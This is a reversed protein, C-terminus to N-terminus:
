VVFLEETDASQDASALSVRNRGARKAKYLEQDAAALLEDLQEGQNAITGGVSITMPLTLPAAGPKAMGPSNPGDSSDNARQRYPQSQVAQRLREAVIWSDQENNIPVIACFEEGGYRAIVAEPRLSKRLVKACHELVRDGVDHGHEDNVRKFHDIDLMLVAVLKGSLRTREILSEGHENLSGRSTLHTLADTDVRHRLALVNQTNIELLLVATFAVPLVLKAMLMLAISPTIQVATAGNYWFGGAILYIEAASATIYAAGILTALRKYHPSRTQESSLLWWTGASVAAFTLLEGVLAPHGSSDSILATGFVLVTATAIAILVLRLRSEACFLRLAVEVCIIMAITHLLIGTASAMSFGSFGASEATPQNGVTAIALAGAGLLLGLVYLPMALPSTKEMERLLFVGTATILALFSALLYVHELEILIVTAM